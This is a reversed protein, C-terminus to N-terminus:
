ITLLDVVRSLSWCAAMSGISYIVLRRSFDAYKQNKLALYVLFLVLLVSLQGIEVGINFGLLAVFVHQQPLGIDRLAGAFGLGHILGFIFAVLAPWKRTFTTRTNLAEASVLLISLAITAEVPPSRLILLGLASAALTISHAATFATITWILKRSYGVLLLLSVVFFLHDIGSLIHEIGLKIYSSAIDFTSREDVGSDDVVAQPQSSTLTYVQPQMSSSTSLSILAASYTDGLGTVAVVGKLGRPGCRIVHEDAQCGDPWTVKLDQSIPRDRGPVGWAWSFEHPKIQRLTMEAISMEHANVSIVGLGLLLGVLWIRFNILSSEIKM